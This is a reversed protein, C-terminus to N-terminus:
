VGEGMFLSSIEDNLDDFHEDFDPPLDFKSKGTRRFRESGQDSLDDSVSGLSMMKLLDVVIQQNRIPMKEMIEAAEQILTM